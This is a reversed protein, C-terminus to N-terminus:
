KLKRGCWPCCNIIVHNNEGAFHWIVMHYQDDKKNYWIGENGMFQKIDTTIDKCENCEKYENIMNNKEDRIGHWLLKKEQKIIKWGDM